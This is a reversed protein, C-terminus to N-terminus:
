LKSEVALWEGKTVRQCLESLTKGAWEYDDMDLYVQASLRAWWMGRYWLVLMFTHYENALAKKMWDRVLSGVEERKLGAKVGAEEVLRVDIPLRVNGMFCQTMTHTSNDLVETGLISAVKKSGQQSLTSCYERIAAEGGISERWAIAAPICLYPANDITGVFEFNTEFVSKSASTAPLPSGAAEGSLPIFGHSTPLTTRILHQHRLPVHLVACGRPAYLWRRDM